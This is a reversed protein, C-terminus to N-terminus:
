WVFGITIVEEEMNEFLVVHKSLGDAEFFVWLFRFRTASQVDPPNLLFKCQVWTGGVYSALTDVTPSFDCSIDFCIM